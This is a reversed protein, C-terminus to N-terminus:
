LHETFFSKSRTHTKQSQSDTHYSDMSNAGSSFTPSTSQLNSNNGGISSSRARSVFPTYQTSSHDYVEEFDSFRGGSNRYSTSPTSGSMSGYYYYQPSSSSRRRHSNYRDFVPSYTDSFINNEPAASSPTTMTGYNSEGWSGGFESGSYRQDRGGPNRRPARYFSRPNDIVETQPMIDNTGLNSRASPSRGTNPKGPSHSTGGLKRTFLLGAGAGGASGSGPWLRSLIGSGSNLSGSRRTSTEIAGGETTALAAAHHDSISPVSANTHYRSLFTQNANEGIQHMGPGNPGFTEEEEEEERKRRKSFFLMLLMGILAVGAVSGVVSGVIKGTNNPTLNAFKSPDGPIISTATPPGFIVDTALAGPVSQTDFTPTITYRMVTVSTSTATHGDSTVLLVITQTHTLTVPSFSHKSSTVAAETIGLKERDSSVFLSSSDKSSSYRKSSFHSTSLTDRETTSGKRTSIATNFHTNRILTDSNFVTGSIIEDHESHFSSPETVTESESSSVETQTTQTYSGLSETSRSGADSTPTTRTSYPNNYNEELLNKSSDQKSNYGETSSKSTSGETQKSNEDARTSTAATSQLATDDAQGFPTVNSKELSSITGTPYELDSSSISTPINHVPESFFSSITSSQFYDDTPSSTTSSSTSDSEFIDTAKTNISLDSFTSLVPVDSSKVISSPYEKQSAHKTAISSDFDSKTFINPETISTPEAEIVSYSQYTTYPQSPTTESSHSAKTFTKYTSELTSHVLPSLSGSDSNVATSATDLHSFLSFATRSPSSLETLPALETSTVSSADQAQTIKSNTSHLNSNSNSSDDSLSTTEINSDTATSESSDITSSIETDTQSDIIDISSQTTDPLTYLYLSELSSTLSAFSNFPLSSLDFTTAPKLASDSTIENKSSQSSSSYKSAVASNSTFTINSSM